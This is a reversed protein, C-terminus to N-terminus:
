QHKREVKDYFVSYKRPFGRLRGGDPGPIGNRLRKPTTFNSIKEFNGGIFIM